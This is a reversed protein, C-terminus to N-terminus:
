APMPSFESFVASSDGAPDTPRAPASARDSSWRDQPPPPAWELRFLAEDERGGCRAEEAVWGVAGFAWLGEREGDGAASKREEAM